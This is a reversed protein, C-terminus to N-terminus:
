AVSNSHHQNKTLTPYQAVLVTRDINYEEWGTRNCIHQVVNSIFDENHFPNIISSIFAQNYFVYFAPQSLSKHITNENIQDSLKSWTSLKWGLRLESMFFQSELHPWLFWSFSSLQQDRSYMQTTVLIKITVWAISIKYFSRYYKTFLIYELFFLLACTLFVKFLPKIFLSIRVIKHFLLHSPRKSTCIATSWIIFIIAFFTFPTGNITFYLVASLM